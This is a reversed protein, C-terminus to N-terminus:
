ILERHMNEGGIGVRISHRESAAPYLCHGSCEGSEGFTM